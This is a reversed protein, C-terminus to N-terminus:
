KNKWWKKFEGGRTKAFRIVDNAICGAQFTSIGYGETTKIGKNFAEAPTLKDVKIDPHSYYEGWELFRLVSHLGLLCTINYPDKSNNECYTEFVKLQEEKVYTNFNRLKNFRKPPLGLLKEEIFKKIKQKM